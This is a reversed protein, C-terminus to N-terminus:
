TCLIFNRPNLNRLLEPPKHRLLISINKPRLGQEQLWQRAKAEATRRDAEAGKLYGLSVGVLAGLAGGPIRVDIFQLGYGITWGTGMGVYLGLITYGWRHGLGMNTETAEAMIAQMRLTEDLTNDKLRIRWRTRNIKHLARARDHKNGYLYGITGGTVAGVLSVIGAHTLKPNSTKDVGLGILFGMDGYLITWGLRGLKGTNNAIEEETSPEGFLDYVEAHADDSFFIGSIYIWILIITLAIGIYKSYSKKM